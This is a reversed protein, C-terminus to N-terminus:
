RPGLAASSEPTPSPRVPAGAAAGMVPNTRNLPIEGPGTTAPPGSPAGGPGGPGAMMPPMAMSMQWQFYLAQREMAGVRAIPDATEDQTIETLSTLHADLDDDRLRPYAVELLGFIQHGASRVQPDNMDTGQFGTHARFQDTLHHFKTAVTKARRRQVQKPDGAVNFLTQNPYQRRAEDTSLFIGGDAGRVTMLELVEQARLEPSAGFANVLKYTPPEESLKTNDIYPEALYAYDDGTISVLWPVDGYAKMQKWCRQAFDCAARRFRMNVPGHITNDAQQLALIARYAIRSGPAEGRSAAQFGGITYIAQRREDCELKLANLIESPWQMVRPSWNALSPEVELINYGDLELMDDAIAGGPSVIPARSMRRVVEWRESLAINLDVQLQDLDEVWPKGHIDEGRHHSYVLTWSFDGAPLPQDALMVARTANGEARRLDGAEPVAIIQLRGEPWDADIGPLVERCILLLLEQGDDNGRRYSMTPHGHLGLGELRWSRAIRQFLAASPIKNSGQVGEIGPVHAFARRVLDAPLLRGYSCSYVSGRKASRDFVTDFPNGVWCDIMGPRPAILQNITQEDTKPAGYTIPEYQDNHDDRWYCHVPCFGAPMALYLADSFLGNWDQQQQLHNIWITDILARERARRDPMSDSFFRLPMATHHAVANDVVPRLLNESKRFESVLRPIEIRQGQYIDAWQLDGSGDIHLLLKESQLDRERRAELGSKHAALIKRAEADQQAQSKADLQNQQPLPAVTSLPGEMVPM